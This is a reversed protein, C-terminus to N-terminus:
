NAVGTCLSKGLFVFSHSETAVSEKQSQRRVSCSSHLNWNFGQLNFLFLLVHQLPLNRWTFSGITGKSINLFYLYHSCKTSMFSVENNRGARMCMFEVCVSVHMCVCWELWAGFYVCGCRCVRGEVKKRREGPM